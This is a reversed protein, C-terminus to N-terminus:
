ELTVRLGWALLCAVSKVIVAVAQDVLIGAVVAIGARFVYAATPIAARMGGDGSPLAEIARGAGLRVVAFVPYTDSFREFAVVIVGARVVRAIGVHTALGRGVELVAVVSVRAGQAVSALM